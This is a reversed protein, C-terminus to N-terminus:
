RALSPRALCAETITWCPQSTALAEMVPKVLAAAAAAAIYVSGDNHNAEITDLLCLAVVVGVDSKWSHLLLKNGHDCYIRSATTSLTTAPPVM